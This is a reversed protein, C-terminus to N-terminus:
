TEKRFLKYNIVIIIPFCRQKLRIQCTDSNVFTMFVDIYSTAFVDPGAKLDYDMYRINRSGGLVM